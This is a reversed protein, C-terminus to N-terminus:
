SKGKLGDIQSMVWFQGKIKFGHVKLWHHAYFIPVVTFTNSPKYWSYYGIGWKNYNYIMEYMENM